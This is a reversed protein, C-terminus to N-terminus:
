NTSAKKRIFRSECSKTCVYFVPLFLNMSKETINEPIEGPNSNERSNLTVGVLVGM